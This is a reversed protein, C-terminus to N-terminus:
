PTGIAYLRRSTRILLMNDVVAPTAAIPEGLGNKALINPREGSIDVAVVHGTASAILLRDGCLIPSAYHTGSTGIRQRYLREKTGTDICALIGGNKVIYVRGNHYVPSPVEPISQHELVTVHSDTVDGAGGLRVALLGHQSIGSRFEESSRRIDEWEDRELQGNKNKDLWTFRIPRATDPADTGEPRYFFKMNSPLEDGTLQGDANKDNQELLSDFDPHQPVLAPEGTQNWTAVFLHDDGLVPTSTATTNARVWWIPKGDGLSHARVGDISHLLIQDKWVLPTGTASHATNFRSSFEHKWVQEGTDVSVALLYHDQYTARYLIVKDQTIIPSIANGAYTKAVPMSVAWRQNGEFDFCVLGCSGFYAVVRDGDTAPTSSAPNFAAHGKEIENAPITRRWRVSGSSREINWLELRRSEPEFSTLFIHDNWVCPSSHGTPLEISWRVNEDPGFELPVQGTDGAIGSCNEGRFQPWAIAGPEQTTSEQAFLPTVFWLGAVAAASLRARTTQKM